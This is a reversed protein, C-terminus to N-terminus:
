LNLHGETVPPCWYYSGSVPNTFRFLADVIGDDKGVMRNLLAEFADFSHGFAVFVLGAQREDAWPMSRRLIFAEPEFDEQATRKVHASAPAEEIEANDSIRRGITDDQEPQPMSQFRELDHIWQQVAVFSSGDIGAGQDQVIGANVAEEGEPNETGDEYGTLDRSDRYQFADIVQELSFAGDLLQEYYLTSHLLDGRDDGRLWIWLAAPTSPISFGPGALSPFTRMGDIGKGVTMLLPLGLGVVAKEGDASDALNRLVERPNTGPKISFTLYRAQRPANALIGPQAHQM